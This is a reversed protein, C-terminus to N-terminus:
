GHQNSKVLEYTIQATLGWLSITRGSIFTSSEGSPPSLGILVSYGEPWQKKFTEVAQKFREDFTPEITKKLTKKTIKKKM